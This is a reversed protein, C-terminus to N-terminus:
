LSCCATSIVCNACGAPAPWYNAPMLRNRAFNSATPAVPLPRPPSKSGFLRPHNGGLLVPRGNQLAPMKSAQIVRLALM